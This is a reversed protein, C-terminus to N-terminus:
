RTRKFIKGVLKFEAIAPKAPIQDQDFYKIRIKSKQLKEDHILVAKAGAFGTEEWVIKFKEGEKKLLAFEKYGGSGGLDMQIFIEAIKDGDIDPELIKEIERGESQFLLQKKGSKILLLQDNHALSEEVFRKELILRGRNSVSIEVKEAIEALLSNTFLVCVILFALKKM